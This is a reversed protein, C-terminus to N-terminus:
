RFMMSKEDITIITQDKRRMAVPLSTDLKKTQLISVHQVYDRLVQFIMFQITFVPFQNKYQLLRENMEEILEKDNFKYKVIGWSKDLSKQLKLDKVRQEQEAQKIKKEENTM